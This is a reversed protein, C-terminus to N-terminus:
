KRAIMLKEKKRTDVDKFIYLVSDPLSNKQRKNKVLWEYALMRSEEDYIQIYVVDSEDVVAKYEELSLGLTTGSSAIEEVKVQKFGDICENPFM